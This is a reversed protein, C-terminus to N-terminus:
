LVHRSFGLQAEPQAETEGNAADGPPRGGRRGQMRKAVGVLRDVQNAMEIELSTFAKQLEQFRKDHEEVASQLTGIARRGRLGLWLMHFVQPYATPSVSGGGLSLCM